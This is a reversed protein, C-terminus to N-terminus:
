AGKVLSIKTKDDYKYGADDYYKIDKFVCIKTCNDIRSEINIRDGESLDNIIKIREHGVIVKSNNELYIVDYTTSHSSDPDIYSYKIKTITDTVIVKSNKYLKDFTKKDNKSIDILKSITIQEKVKNNNTVEIKVENNSIKNISGYSLLLFIIIGLVILLNIILKKNM